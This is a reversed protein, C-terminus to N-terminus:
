IKILFNETHLEHRMAQTLVNEIRSPSLSKEHITFESAAFRQIISAMFWINRGNWM